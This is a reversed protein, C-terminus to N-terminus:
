AGSWRFESVATYLTVGISQGVRHGIYGLGVGGLLGGVLCAGGVAVEGVVPIVLGPSVLAAATACGAWMGGAGFAVSGVTSSIEKAAVKAREAEPATAIVIATASITFVITAPGAVRSIVAIRDVVQRTKGVSSIVAEITGKQRIFQDFDKLTAR